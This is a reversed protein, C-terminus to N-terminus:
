IPLDSVQSEERPVLASSRPWARHKQIPTEPSSEQERRSGNKGGPNAKNQKWCKCM